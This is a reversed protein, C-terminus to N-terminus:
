IPCYAQLIHKFINFFFTGLHEVHQVHQRLKPPVERRQAASHWGPPRGLGRPDQRWLHLDAPTICRSALRDPEPQRWSFGRLCCFFILFNTPFPTYANHPVSMTGQLRRSPRHRRLRGRPRGQEQVGDAEQSGRHLPWSGGDSELRAQLWVPAPLDHKHQSFLPKILKTLHQLSM